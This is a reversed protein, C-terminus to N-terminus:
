GRCDKRIEKLVGRQYEDMRQEIDAVEKRKYMFFQAIEEGSGTLLIDLYM